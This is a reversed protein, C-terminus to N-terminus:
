AQESGAPAEIVRARANTGPLRPVFDDRSLHTHREGMTGNKKLLQLRVSYGYSWAREWRECGIFDIRGVFTKQATKYEVFLGLKLGDSEIRALALELAANNKKADAERAELEAAAYKAELEEITATTTM